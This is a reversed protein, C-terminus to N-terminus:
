LAGGGCRAVDHDRATQPAIPGFSGAIMFRCRALPGPPAARQLATDTGNWAARRTHPSDWEPLFQADPSRSMFRIPLIAPRSAAAMPSAAPRVMAPVPAARASTTGGTPWHTSIKLGYRCAWPFVRHKSSGFPDVDLPVCSCSQRQWPYAELPAGCRQTNMWGSSLLPLRM